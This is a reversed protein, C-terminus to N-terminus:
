TVWKLDRNKTSHPETNIDYEWLSVEAKFYIGGNGKPGMSGWTWFSRVTTGIKKLDKPIRHWVGGSSSIDGDSVHTSANECIYIEDDDYFINEVHAKPYFRGMENTYEVCDGVKIKDTPAFMNLFNNVKSLITEDVLFFNTPNEEKLKELTM